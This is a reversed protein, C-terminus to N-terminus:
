TFDPAAIVFGHSALHTALCDYYLRSGCFGHATLVLPYGRRLPAVDRRARRPPYSIDTPLTRNGRGPDLADVTTVAVALKGPRTPDPAGFAGTALAVLALVARLRM